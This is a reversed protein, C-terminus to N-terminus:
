GVCDKDDVVLLEHVTGENSRQYGENDNSEYSEYNHFYCFPPLYVLEIEMRKKASKKKLCILGLDEEFKPGIIINM